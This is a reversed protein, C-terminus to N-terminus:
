WMTKKAREPWEKDYAAGNINRRSTIELIQGPTPLSKPDVHKAPNWLESRVIARACQFYVADVAIVTLSRAPKGDVMFSACLEADATIHARGNVRLTTGSGPVLFLLGVRPDRIINKLSDARNNGRRDPMMLTKEDLLRVFGALDGRPSCDLGEPGCTALAVFPSAEIFAAYEPIVHDLEKVVSAEGPLGYLAELQEVSTILSM